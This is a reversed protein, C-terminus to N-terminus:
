PLDIIEIEFRNTIEGNGNKDWFRVEVDYKEDYDMPRGTSVMCRLTSVSDRHFSGGNEFLDKVHLLSNGGKDRIVLECGLHARDDAFAFGKVDHNILMFEEGLPIQNHNIEEGNMVLVAGEPKMNLYTTTVGNSVNKIIGTQPLESCAGSLLVAIVLLTNIKKV